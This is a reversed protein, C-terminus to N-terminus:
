REVLEFWEALTFREALATFGIDHGRRQLDEVIEMLHVSDLGIEILDDDDAVPEGVREVVARRLWDRDVGGAPASGASLTAVVEAHGVSRGCRRTVYDVAMQHDAASFDAVADAVFFVQLDRMFAEISTALCGIHAYVGTVVLQDRGAQRLMEALDTRQFASYRWKTLVDEGPRPRLRDIIAPQGDHATLGPGWFDSLLGRDNAAQDPPQASFLVPVGASRATEIILQIHEVAPAMPSAHRDFVAVFYEQMDHVLVAARRPELPWTARGPPPAAWRADLPYPEIRGLGPRDDAADSGGAPPSTHSSM